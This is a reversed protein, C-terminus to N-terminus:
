YEQKEEPEQKEEQQKEQENREAIAIKQALEKVRYELSSIEITMYFCKIIVLFFIVLFIFNTSSYIGLLKAGWIALGPFLSLLVLIGSFILWFIAHEIQLKSQRIKKLMYAATGISIVILVIRFIWSLM